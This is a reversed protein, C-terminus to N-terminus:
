VLPNEPADAQALLDVYAASILDAPPVGLRELLREARERGADISGGPGLVVELELFWGLSAVEDLHIRADGALYLHRVKRVVGRQGLAAQLVRDLQDPASTTYIVYDSRKPGPTDPRTYAILEAPGGPQRRLKLRGAATRYFTDVQSIVQPPGGSLREAVRRAREVDTLRAKIEINTGM